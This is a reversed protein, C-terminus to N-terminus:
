LQQWLQATHAWPESVKIGKGSFGQNWLQEAAMMSTVLTDGTLSRSTVRRGATSGSSGGSLMRTLASAGWDLLGQLRRRSSRRLEEKGWSSERDAPNNPDLGITPRTRLRGPPKSVSWISDGDDEPAPPTPHAASGPAAPQQQQQQQQGSQQPDAAIPQQAPAPPPADALLTRQQVLRLEGAAAADLPLHAADVVAHALPGEPQWGRLGRLRRDLHVDRVSPVHQLATQLQQLACAAVSLLAFDSPLMTAAKNPREQWAWHGTLGSLAATLLARHEHLM